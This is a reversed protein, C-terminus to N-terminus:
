FPIRDSFGLLFIKKSNAVMELWRPHEPVFLHHIRSGKSILKPIEIGSFLYPKPTEIARFKFVVGDFEGEFIGKRRQWFWIKVIKQESNLAPFEYGPLLFGFPQTKFFKYYYRKEQPNVNYNLPASFIKKILSHEEESVQGHKLLYKRIRKYNVRTAIELSEASVPAAYIRQLCDMPHVEFFCRISESSPPLLFFFTQFQYADGAGDPIQSPFYLADKYRTLCLVKM